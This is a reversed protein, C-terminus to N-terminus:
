GGTTELAIRPSALPLLWKERKDIGARSHAYWTVGPRDDEAANLITKGVGIGAATM